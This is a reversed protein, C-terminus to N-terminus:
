RRQDNRPPTVVLANRGVAVTEARATEVSYVRVLYTWDLVDPFDGGIDPAHPRAPHYHVETFTLYRSDRSWRLDTAWCAEGPVLGTLPVTLRRPHPTWDVVIVPGDGSTMGVWRADPSVAAVPPAVPINSVMPYVPPLGLSRLIALKAGDKPCALPLGGSILQAARGIEPAFVTEYFALQSPYRRVRVLRKTTTEYEWEWVDTSLVRLHTEDRWLVCAVPLQPLIATPRGGKLPILSVDFAPTLWARWLTAVQTLGPSCQYYVSGRELHKDTFARGDPSEWLTVEGAARSIYRLRLQQRPGDRAIYLVATADGGTTPHNNMEALYTQNRSPAECGLCLICCALALVGPRM